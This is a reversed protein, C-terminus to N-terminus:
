SWKWRTRKNFIRGGRKDMRLKEDDNGIEVTQYLPLIKGLFISLKDTNEFNENESSYDDAQFEGKSQHDLLHGQQHLISDDYKIVPLSYGSLIMGFLVSFRTINM